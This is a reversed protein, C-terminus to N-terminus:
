VDGLPSPEWLYPREGQPLRTWLAVDGPTRMVSTQSLHALSM